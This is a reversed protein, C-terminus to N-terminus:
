GTQGAETLGDLAANAICYLFFVTGHRYDGNKLWVRRENLKRATVPVTTESERVNRGASIEEQHGM